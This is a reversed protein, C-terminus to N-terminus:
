FIETWTGTPTPWVVIAVVVVVVLIIVAVVVVKAIETLSDLKEANICIVSTGWFKQLPNSHYPHGDQGM